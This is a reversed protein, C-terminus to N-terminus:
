CASNCTCPWMSSLGSPPARSSSRSGPGDQAAVHRASVQYGVSQLRRIETEVDRFWVEAITASVDPEGILPLPM